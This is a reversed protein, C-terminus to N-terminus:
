TNCTSKERMLDFVDLGLSAAMTEAFFLSPNAKTGIEVLRIYGESYGSIAALAESSLGQATREERLRRGFVSSPAKM